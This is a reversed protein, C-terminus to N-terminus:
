MGLNFLEFYTKEKAKKINPNVYDIKNIKCWGRDYLNNIFIKQFKEYNKKDLTKEIEEFNIKKEM